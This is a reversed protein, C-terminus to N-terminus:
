VGHPSVKANGVLVELITSSVHELKKYVQNM